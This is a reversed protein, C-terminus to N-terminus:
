PIDQQVLDIQDAEAETAGDGLLSVRASSETRGIENSAICTYVGADRRTFGAVTLELRGDYALTM